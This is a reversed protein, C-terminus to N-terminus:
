NSKIEDQDKGSFCMFANLDTMNVESAIMMTVMTKKAKRGNPREVEIMEHCSLIMNAMGVMTSSTRKKIFGRKLNFDNRTKSSLMATTAVMTVKALQIVAMIRTMKIIPNPAMVKGGPDLVVGLM